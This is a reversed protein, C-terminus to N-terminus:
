ILEKYDSLATIATALGALAKLCHGRKEKQKKSYGVINPVKKAAENLSSILLDIQKREDEEIEADELISNLVTSTSLGAFKESEIAFEMKGSESNVEVTPNHPPLDPLLSKLRANEARLKELEDDQDKKAKEEAEKKKAAKMEMLSAFVEFQDDNYSAVSVADISHNDSEQDSFKVSFSGDLEKAMGANILRVVRAQLREAKKKEAEKKIREKEQDINDRIKFLEDKLPELEKKIRKAEDDIIEGPKISWIRKLNLREKEIDTLKNKIEMYASHVVNYGDKDDIGAIVLGAYEEKKQAIWADTVGYKALDAKVPAYLEVATESEPLVPLVEIDQAEVKKTKTKAM